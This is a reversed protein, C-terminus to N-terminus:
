STMYTNSLIIYGTGIMNGKIAIRNSSASESSYLFEMFSNGTHTRSYAGKKGGKGFDVVNVEYNNTLCAFPLGGMQFASTSSGATYNIYCNIHVLRGIKTYRATQVTPISGGGAHVTPTWTGEEYDDLANAAATDGNFCLGDSTFRAIEGGSTKTGFILNRAISTGATIHLNGTSGHRHIRCANNVAANSTSNEIIIGDINNGIRAAGNVDLKFNSNPTGNIGVNGASTINIRANAAVGIQMLDSAHQYSIFGRYGSNDNGSGDSFSLQSISSTGARMEIGASGSSAVTLLRDTFHSATTTGLLM